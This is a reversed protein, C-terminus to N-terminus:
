QELWMTAYIAYDLLDVKCDKNLDGAKYLTGIDGCFQPDVLLFENAGEFEGTYTSVAMSDIWGSFGGNFNVDADCIIEDQNDMATFCHNAIGFNEPLGLNSNTTGSATAKVQGNVYYSAKGMSNDSNWEWVIAVHSFEEPSLAENPDADAFNYFFSTDGVMIRQGYGDVTVAMGVNDTITGAVDCWDGIEWWKMIWIQGYRNDNSTPLNAYDPMVWAEFIYNQELDYGPGVNVLMVEDLADPGSSKGNTYMVGPTSTLDPLNGYEDAGVTVPVSVIGSDGSYTVNDAEIAGDMNLRFVTTLEAAGACSYVLIGALFATFVKSLAKPSNEM